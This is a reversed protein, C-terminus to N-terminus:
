LCSVRAVDLAYLFIWHRQQFLLRIIPCPLNQSHLQNPPPEGFTVGLLLCPLLVLAVELDLLPQTDDLPHSHFLAIFGAAVAGGTIAAQSLAM